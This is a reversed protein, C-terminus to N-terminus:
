ISWRVKLGLIIGRLEADSLARTFLLGCGWKGNYFNAVTSVPYCLLGVRNPTPAGVDVFAGSGERALGRWIDGTTGTSRFSSITPVATNAVASSVVVNSTTGRKILTPFDASTAGLRWSSNAVLASDGAGLLASAALVGVVPQHVFVATLAKAAGSFAAVVAAEASLIKRSSTAGDGTMCPGGALGTADYLPPATAETWDVASVMNRISTVAGGSETFTERLDWWGVLDSVQTPPWIPRVVAGSAVRGRNHHGAPRRSFM